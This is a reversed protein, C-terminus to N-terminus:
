RKAGGAEAQAEGRAAETERGLAAIARMMEDACEQSAASTAEAERPWRSLDLPAGFTIRITRRPHLRIADRLEAALSNVLGAVYVPIVIPRAELALEGAGRKAPLFTLPDESKSRTGEPHFGVARRPQLLEGALIRLARANFSRARPTRFIPPYMAGGSFLANLLLGLPNEYFFNARVPFCVPHRLGTERRLAYFVCFLDFWTRHNAVVLLSADRSVGAIRELGRIRTRRALLPWLLAEVVFRQWLRAFGILPARHFAAVAAIAFREFWTLSGTM